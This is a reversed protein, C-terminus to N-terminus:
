DDSKQNNWEVMKLTKRITLLEKMSTCEAIKKMFRKSKGGGAVYKELTFAKFHELGEM